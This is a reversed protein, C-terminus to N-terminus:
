PGQSGSFFNSRTQRADVSVKQSKIVCKNKIVHTIRSFMRKTFLELMLYFFSFDM